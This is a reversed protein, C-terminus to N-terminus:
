RHFRAVTTYTVTTPFGPRSAGTFRHSNELYLAVSPKEVTGAVIVLVRRGKVVPSCLNPDFEFEARVVVDTQLTILKGVSSQCGTGALDGVVSLIPRVGDLRFELDLTERRGRPFGSENAWSSEIQSGGHYVGVMPQAWSLAQPPLRGDQIQFNECGFLFIFPIFLILQLCQKM